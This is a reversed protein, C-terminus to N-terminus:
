TGTGGLVKSSGSHFGLSPIHSLPQPSPLMYLKTRGQLGLQVQAHMYYM